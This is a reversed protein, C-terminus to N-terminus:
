VAIKKWKGSLYRRLLLADRVLHDAFMAVWVGAVGWGVPYALLYSLPLRFFWMGALTARLTWRTDGAGRLGGATIFGFAQVPEGAAIIRLCLAGWFVVTADTSFVRVMAPSFLFFALGMLSTWFIGMRVAAWGSAEARQPKGAGLHQGILTSAAVAFGFCPMVSIAEIQMAVQHAAYPATGMRVVMISMLMMGFTVLFQEAAAPLSINLLSGLLQRDIRWSTRWAIRLGSRGRFLLVLLALFGVARAVVSAWAAGAIGLAPVVGAVGFILVYAVALNLVNISATIYMPTRTDGAGRLAGGMIFMVVPLVALGGTIRLVLAAPEVLEAPAGILQVLPKALFISIVGLGLGLLLGLLVSQKAVRSAEAWDGAGVRRAVLAVTGVSVSGWIPMMLFIFQNAVGVSAIAETGLRGLMIMTTISLMTQLLQEAIAPWALHLVQNNLGDPDLVRRWAAAPSAQLGPLATPRELTELEIAQDSNSM